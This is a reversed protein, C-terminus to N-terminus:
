EGMIAQKALLYSQTNGGFLAEAIQQDKKGSLRLKEAQKIRMVMQYEAPLKQKHQQSDWDNLQQSLSTVQLNPKIELLEYQLATLLIQQHESLSSVLALKELLAQMLTNPKIYGAQHTFPQTLRQSVEIVQCQTHPFYSISSLCNAPVWFTDEKAVAYEQKGLRISVLGEVVHILQHKLTPKRTTTLLYDSHKEEFQIAYHM